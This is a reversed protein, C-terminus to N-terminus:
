PGEDASAILGAVRALEGAADGGLHGIRARADVLALEAALLEGRACLVEARGVDLLGLGVADGLPTLARVGAEVAATAEDLRGEAVLIRALLKQRRGETRRDGILRFLRLARALENAATALDGQAFALAALNQHAYARGQRDGLAQFTALARRTYRDPHPEDPQVGAGLNLLAWAEGRRDGVQKYLTAARMQLARAATHEGDVHHLRARAAVLRAELAPDGLSLALPLAREALARAEDLATTDWLRDGVTALARVLAEADDGREALELAARAAALADGPEGAHDLMRALLPLAHVRHEGPLDAVQRLLAATARYPGVGETLATVTRALAFAREADGWAVARRAAAWLNARDRRADRLRALGREGLFADPGFRDAFWAAHRRQADDTAGRDAAFPRVTALLGMRAGGGSRDIRILSREVLTTLVRDVAEDVRVVAEAAGLDFGGDFVTLQTLARREAESLLSWTWELSDALPSWDLRADDLTSGQLGAAALELAVPVGDLRRVLAHVSRRNEPTLAFHPDAERARAVFLAVADGDEDPTPGGLVGLHAAREGDIGLPRAATALIRLDPAAEVWARVADRGEAGARDLADLVLLLAGRGELGAALSGRTRLGLAGAVASALEGGSVDVFWVGGPFDPQADRAVEVALRTKGIGPPGVLTVLPSTTLAERVATRERTRGVFAGHTRPLPAGSLAAISPAPAGTTAPAATPATLEPPPAATAATPDDGDDPDVTASRVWATLLQSTRHHPTSADVERRVEVPDVLRTTPDPDLLRGILARLDRPAAGLDPPRGPRSGTVMQFLIVGLSWYDAAVGPAEGAIQEPAAYARTGMSRSTTGGGPGAAAAIGFDAVLPTVGDGRVQLLVNAPKLDRHIVGCSHAAEVGRVIDRFLRRALDDELRRSALLSALSPGAIRPMVLVPVQGHLLVDLVPLVNPHDIRAQARGEAVLAAADAAPHTLVKLARVSGLLSHRASWVEAMGGAGLRAEVVYRDIVTGRAIM